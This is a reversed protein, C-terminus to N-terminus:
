QALGAPACIRMEQLGFETGSLITQEVGGIQACTAGPPVGLGIIRRTNAPCDYTCTCTSIVDNGAFTGLVAPTTGRDLCRQVPSDAGLTLLDDASYEKKGFGVLSYSYLKVVFSESDTTEDVRETAFEPVEMNTLESIIEPSTMQALLPEDKLVTLRIECKTNTCQVHGLDVIGAVHQLFAQTIRSSVEEPPQRWWLVENLDRRDEASATAETPGTVSQAPSAVNGTARNRTSTPDAATTDEAIQDANEADSTAAPLENSVAPVNYTSSNFVWLGVLGVVLRIVLGASKSM